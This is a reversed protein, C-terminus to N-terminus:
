REAEKRVLEALLDFVAVVVANASCVIAMIGFGVSNLVIAVCVDAAVVAVGTGLMGEANSPRNAALIGKWGLVLNLACCVLVLACAGYEMGSSAKMFPTIDLVVLVVALILVAFSLIKLAKRKTSM